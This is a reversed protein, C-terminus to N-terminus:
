IDLGILIFLVYVHTIFYGRVIKTAKEAPRAFKQM